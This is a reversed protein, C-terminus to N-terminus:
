RPPQPVPLPLPRPRPKRSPITNKRLKSFHLLPEGQELLSILEFVTYRPHDIQRLRYEDPEVEIIQRGQQQDLFREADARAARAHELVPLSLAEVVYSRLLKSWYREFLNADAFLDAWVVEGNIAVVVGVVNKGRLAGRLAREYERQLDASAQDIKRRLAPARELQAYSTSARLTGTPVGGVVGERVADTALWVEQQTKAVAAKERVRPAAMLGTGTFALSAGHWRGREVCFVDLPLPDAGAPVLRDKAIVRDQKGGTVIEGALLLLAKPSHNVLALTNVRARDPRPMGPRRRILGAGLERVEVEGARLGDDLTIYAASSHAAASTVPFLALNSHVIPEHVQWRPSASVATPAAPLFATAAVGAALLLLFWRLRM